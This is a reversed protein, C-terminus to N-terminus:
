PKVKPKHIVDFVGNEAFFRQQADGWDKALSKVPFLDIKPPRDAHKNLIQPNIPRYGFKAITEQAPETYLFELYARAAAATQRRTVNADVWAVTPEALMSVPPYVIELEGQHDEVERLAEHEWTLHVDGM